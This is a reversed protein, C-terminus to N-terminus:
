NEKNKEGNKIISIRERLEELVIKFRKTTASPYNRILEKRRKTLRKYLEDKERTLKAIKLELEDRKSKVLSEIEEKKGISSEAFEVKIEEIEERIKKISEMFKQMGLVSKASSYLDTVFLITLVVFIVALLVPNILLIIQEILPHIIYTMIISLFGWFLSSKLCIYGNLNFPSNSYDWYRVKLILEMAWGTFYELVTAGLMGALYVLLVSQRLPLSCILVILAGSGYLPLWPGHLFGRNVLRKRDFSVITSEICWGLFCYLYFFLSWQVITYELMVM